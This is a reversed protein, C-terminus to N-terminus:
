LRHSAGGPRNVAFYEDSSDRMKLIPMKKAVYKKMEHVDDTAFVIEYFVNSPPTKPATALVLNQGSSLWMFFPFTTM